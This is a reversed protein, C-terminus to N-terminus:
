GPEVSLIEANPQQAVFQARADEANDAHIETVGGGDGLKYEIDWTPRADVVEEEAENDVAEAAPETTPVATTAPQATDIEFNAEQTSSTM